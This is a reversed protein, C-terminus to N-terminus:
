EEATKSSEAAQDAQNDSTLAETVMEPKETKLAEDAKVAAPSGNDKATNSMAESNDATLNSKATEEKQQEESDMKNSSAKDHALASDTEEAVPAPHNASSDLDDVIKPSTSQTADGEVASGDKVDPEVENQQSPVYDFSFVTPGVSTATHTQASVSM